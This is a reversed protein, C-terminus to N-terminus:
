FKINLIIKGVHENAEMMRHAEVVDKVNLEKYIIPKVKGSELLPYINQILGDAVTRKYAVDRVRITSGTITLRKLMLKTFSVNAKPGGLLAIIILRGDENLSKINRQVYEGCVIDLIVDVGRNKTKELIYDEFKINKDTYDIAHDAGLDICSKCKDKGDSTTFVECGWSKCLQIATTGIGSTGGHILVKENHGLKGRMFINSYVTFYTECIGAAEIMSLGKPVPLCLPADATCYEAYGGGSLLSIVKDGLKLDKVNKGLQVVEGSCELGPIDSAGKPPPYMGARQICDPRNIGTATVKLLVENDKPVPLPRTGITMVEPPGYKPIEICKMTTPLTIFYRIANNINHNNRNIIRLLSNM